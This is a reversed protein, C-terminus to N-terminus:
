ISKRCKVTKVIPLNSYYFDDEQDNEDNEYPEDRDSKEDDSGDVSEDDEETNEMSINYLVIFDVEDIDDFKFEYDYGLHELDDKLKNLAYIIESNPLRWVASPLDLHDKAIYGTFELNLLRDCIESKWAEYLEISLERMRKKVQKSSPIERGKEFNNM